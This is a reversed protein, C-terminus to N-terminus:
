TFEYIVEPLNDTLILSHRKFTNHLRLLEIPDSADWSNTWSWAGWQKLAESYNSSSVIIRAIEEGNSNHGKFLSFYFKTKDTPHEYVRDLYIGQFSKFKEM